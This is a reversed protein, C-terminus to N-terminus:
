KPPPVEWRPYLINMECCVYLFFSPILPSVHWPHLNLASSPDLNLHQFYLFIRYGRRVRKEQSRAYFHGPPFKRSRYFFFIYICLNELIFPTLLRIEIMFLIHVVVFCCIVLCIILNASENLM